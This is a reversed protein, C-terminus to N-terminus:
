IYKCGERRFCRAHQFNVQNLGELDDGDSVHLHPLYRLVAMHSLYETTEHKDLFLVLPGVHSLNARLKDLDSRFKTHLGSSHSQTTCVPAFSLAPSIKTHTFILSLQIKSVTRM